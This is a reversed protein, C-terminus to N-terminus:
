AGSELTARIQQTLPRFRAMTSIFWDLFEIRSDADLVDGQLRDVHIRCAKKGPLPDYKISGAFENDLLLRHEVFREFEALNVSADPGGFYLEVRPGTVTFAMGYWITSTGYPLTIWSQSSGATSRTWTPHESRIRGLLEGWFEQYALSKPSLTVASRETHLQKTWDNPKAVVRFLPAPRSEDIRVASIEVGFFRTEEDTHENLWDLAARHEERFTPACWVITSPDTGGAYTLLQGLHSHDTQELQNEVIVVTNTALDTGILDLAFGGVRREAETLQLEM